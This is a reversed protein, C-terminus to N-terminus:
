CMKNPQGWRDNSLFGLWMNGIGSKGESGENKGCPREGVGREWM